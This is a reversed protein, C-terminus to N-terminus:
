KCDCLQSGFQGFALPILLPLPLGLLAPSMFMFGVFHFELRLCIRRGSSPEAGIYAIVFCFLFLCFLLGFRRGHSGQNSDDYIPSGFKIGCGILLLVFFCCLCLFFFM